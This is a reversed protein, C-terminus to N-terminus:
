DFTIYEFLFQLNSFEPHLAGNMNVCARTRTDTHPNYYVVMWMLTHKDYFV